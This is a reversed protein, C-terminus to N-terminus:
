MDGQVWSWWCWKGQKWLIGCRVKKGWEEKGERKKERDSLSVPFNVGTVKLISSGSLQRHISCPASSQHMRQLVFLPFQPAHHVSYIICPQAQEWSPAKSVSGPASSHFQIYVNFQSSRSRGSALKSSNDLCCTSKSTCVCDTYIFQLICMKSYCSTLASTILMLATCLFCRLSSTIGRTGLAILRQTCLISALLKTEIGCHQIDTKNVLNSIVHVTYINFQVKHHKNSLQSAHLFFCKTPRGALM